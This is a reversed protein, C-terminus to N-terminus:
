LCPQCMVLGVLDALADGGVKLLQKFKPPIVDTVVVPVLTEPQEQVKCLGYPVLLCPVEFPRCIGGQVQRYGIM